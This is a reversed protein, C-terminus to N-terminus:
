KSNSKIIQGLYTTIMMLAWFTSSNRVKERNGIFIQSEGYAGYGGSIGFYVLGNPKNPMEGTPGAIGTISISVLKKDKEAILGNAMEIAIENSVAGKKNLNSFNVNLFKIKSNNSYSVIGHEFWLSSGTLQTLSSSLLGGTCSEAVVVKTKLKQLFYAVSLIQILLNKENLNKLNRKKLDAFM